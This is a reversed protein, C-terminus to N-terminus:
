REDHVVLDRLVQAVPVGREGGREPEKGRRSVKGAERPAKGGVPGAGRSMNRDRDAFPTGEREGVPDSRVGAEVARGRLPAARSGETMMHAPIAAAGKGAARTSKQVPVPTEARPGATKAHTSTEQKVTPHARYALGDDDEFSDRRTLARSSRGGKWGPIPLLKRKDDSRTAPTTARSAADTRMPTEQKNTRDPQSIPVERKVSAPPDGTTIREKKVEGRAHRNTSPPTSTKDTPRPATGEEVKIVSKVQDIPQVDRTQAVRRQHVEPATESEPSVLPRSKTKDHLNIVFDQHDQADDFNKQCGFDLPVTEETEQNMSEPQSSVALVRSPKSVPPARIRDALLPSERKASGPNALKRIKQSTPTNHRSSDSLPHRNQSDEERHDHDEECVFSM